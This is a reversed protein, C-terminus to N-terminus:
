SLRGDLDDIASDVLVAAKDEDLSEAIAREAAGIAIDVTADHIEKLAGSEAQAIKEKAAEGRRKLMAELDAKAQAAESESVEKAQAVIRETEKVADRQQRQYGALLAQAEERLRVAEELEAKIKAAREDLKGTIALFGKKAIAAVFLIFALLVWFEPEHFLAGM